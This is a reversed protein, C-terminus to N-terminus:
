RAKLCGFVCESVIRARSLRYNFHKQQHTRTSDDTFPKMLWPQIPYASDGVVCIPINRGLITRGSSDLINDTHKHTFQVTSMHLCGWGVLLSIIVSEKYLQLLLHVTHVKGIVTRPITRSSNWLVTRYHSCLTLCGSQASGTELKSIHVSYCLHM